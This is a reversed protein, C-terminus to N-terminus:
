EGVIRAIAASAKTRPRTNWIKAAQQYAEDKYKPKEGGRYICGGVIKPRECRSCTLIAYQIPDGHLQCGTKKSLGKVAKGGCYECTKLGDEGVKEADEYDSIAALTIELTRKAQEDLDLRSKIDIYNKLEEIKM